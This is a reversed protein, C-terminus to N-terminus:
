ATEEVREAAAAEALHQECADLVADGCEPHFHALTPGSFAVTESQHMRMRPGNPRVPKGCWSCTIGPRTSEGM